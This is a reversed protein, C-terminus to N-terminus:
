LTRRANLLINVHQSAFLAGRAPIILECLRAVILPRCQPSFLSAFSARSYRSLFLSCSETLLVCRAAVPRAVLFSVEAALFLFRVALLLCGIGYLPCCFPLLAYCVTMLLIHTTYLSCRTALASLRLDNAFFPMQRSLSSLMCRAVAIRFCRM